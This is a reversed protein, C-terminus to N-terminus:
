LTPFLEASDTNYGVIHSITECQGRNYGVIQSFTGCQRHQIRCKSFYNQMTKTANHLTHFLEANDANKGVIHYIPGWQRLQMICYTFYNQMTQTIDLLTPLLGANHGVILTITWCHWCQIQCHSLYIRMTEDFLSYKTTNHKFNAVTDSLTKFKGITYKTIFELLLPM